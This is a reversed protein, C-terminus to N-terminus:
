RQVNCHRGRALCRGRCGATIPHSAYANRYRYGGRCGIADGLGEHGRRRAVTTAMPVAVPAVIAPALAGRIGQDFGPSGAVHLEVPAVQLLLVPLVHSVRNTAALIAALGGFGIDLALVPEVREFLFVLKLFGPNEAIASVAFPGEKVLEVLEYSGGAFVLMMMLLRFGQGNDRGRAGLGKLAWGVLGGVHGHHGWDSNIAVVLVEVHGHGRVRGRGFGILGGVRGIAVGVAEVHGAVALAIRELLLLEQVVDAVVVVVVVVEVAVDVVAAGELLECSGNELKALDVLPDLTRFELLEHKQLLLAHFEDSIELDLPHLQEHLSLHLKGLHLMPFMSVISLM